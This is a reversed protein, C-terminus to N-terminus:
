SNIDIKRHKAVEPNGRLSEIHDARSEGNIKCLLLESVGWYYSDSQDGTNLMEVKFAELRAKFTDVNDSNKVTNPLKNWYQVVRANIFDSQLQSPKGIPFLLNQGSKSSRFMNKGYNTIGRYNKFTEILDGRVRREVLTTLGLEELRKRYSLEGLGKIQRTYERQCHELKM